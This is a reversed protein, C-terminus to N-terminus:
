PLYPAPRKVGPTFRFRKLFTGSRVSLVGDKLEVDEWTEHLDSGAGLEVKGDETVLYSLVPACVGGSRTGLTAAVYNDRGFSFHEVADDDLLALNAGILMERLKASDM